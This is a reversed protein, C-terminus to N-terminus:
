NSINKFSGLPFHEFKSIYIFKYGEDLFNIKIFEFFLVIKSYLKLEVLFYSVLM